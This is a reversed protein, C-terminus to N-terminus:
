FVLDKVYEATEYTMYEVTEGLENEALELVYETFTIPDYRFNVYASTTPASVYDGETLLLNESLM